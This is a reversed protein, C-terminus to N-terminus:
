EENLFHLHSNRPYLQLAENTARLAEPLEM